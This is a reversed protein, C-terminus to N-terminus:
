EVMWKTIMRVDKRKAGWDDMRCSLFTRDNITIFALSIKDLGCVGKKNNGCDCLPCEVETGIKKM